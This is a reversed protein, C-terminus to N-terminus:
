DYYHLNFTISQIKHFNGSAYPFELRGGSDSQSDWDIPCTQYDRGRRVLLWIFTPFLTIVGM